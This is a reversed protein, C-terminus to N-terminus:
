RGFGLFKAFLKPSNVFPQDLTRISSSSINDTLLDVTLWFYIPALESKINLFSRSLYQKAFPLIM